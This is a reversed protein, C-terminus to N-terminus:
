VQPKFKFASSIAFLTITKTLLCFANFQIICLVRVHLFFAKANEYIDKIIRNDTMRAMGKSKNYSQPECIMFIIDLIM